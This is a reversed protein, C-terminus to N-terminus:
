AEVDDNKIRVAGTRRRVVRIDAYMAGAGLAEELALTELDEM